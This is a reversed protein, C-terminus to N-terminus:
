EKVMIVRPIVRNNKKILGITTTAYPMITRARQTPVAIIPQIDLQSFYKMMSDIHSEDMNNFAEDLMVICGTSKKYFSSHIIQDFSAAIIVYFPTQTEGGSKEKNIRSFYSVENNKNIIKIDYSMFKRYDTYERILKEQREDKSESTLRQFLEELLQLNKDSMQDTFLDTMNYDEKSMFIDYYEGFSSDKSKSIQFQYKEEETGFPKDDLVKNLKQIHEREDNIHKRIEAIYSNQFRIYAQRKVKILQEEYNALERKVIENYEQYYDNLSDISNNSDFGFENVYELMLNQLSIELKNFSSFESSRKNELESLSIKTDQYFQNFKSSIASDKLKNELIPTSTDIKCELDNIKFEYQAKSNIMEEKENNLARLQIEINNKEMKFSDLETFLALNESKIKDFQVQLKNLNEDSIKKNYWHNEQEKIITLKSKDILIIKNDLTKKDAYDKMLATDIKELYSVLKDILLKIADRGIFPSSYESEKIQRTAKNSYVLVSETISSDFNKLENENDVAIVDGLLYDIYKRAREDETKLKTALSNDKINTTDLKSVNVIGVRSIKRDKKYKEYLSVSLDYFQEPVFLDFRKYNLYGELANRWKNEEEKIDILEAFPIITAEKNTAEFIGTELVDKLELVYDPYPLIGKNLKEIKSEIENKTLELNKIENQIEFLKSSIDNRLLKLEDEYKFLDQRLKEYDESKIYQIFNYNLDLAKIINNENVLRENLDIVKKNLSENEKKHENLDRETREITRYIDGNELEYITRDINEKRNMLNNYNTQNNIIQNKIADLKSLYLNRDNTALDITKKVKYADFLKIDLGIRQYEDGKNIISTLKLAKTKDLKIKNQIENYTNIDIRIQELDVNQEPMLFQFVFDNVDSIPKFSIAKPLLEYYKKGDLQLISYINRRINEAKTSTLDLDNINMEGIKKKMVRYNVIENADNFFLSDDLRTKKIHYFSKGIRASKSQIELVVGIVFYNKDIDDYFELAIHSILDPDPRLFERNEIGIRGRMYTEITRTARENAASNFKDSDGGSLLYYIADIFSSKGCGNEGTVLTSNKLDITENYFGHWNILKIRTLTKM